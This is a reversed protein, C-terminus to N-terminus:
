FDFDRFIFTSYQEFEEPHQTKYQEFFGVDFTVTNNESM